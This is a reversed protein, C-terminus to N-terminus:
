AKLSPINGESIVALLLGRISFYLPAFQEILVLVTTDLDATCLFLSKKELDYVRKLFKNQKMKYCLKMTEPIEGLGRGM